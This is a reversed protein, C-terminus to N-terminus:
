HTLIETINNEYSRITFLRNYRDLANAGMESRLQPSSLLEKLREALAHSDHKPIIYGTKGDEIIDPIGGEDTSIVPVSHQMAELLVLPFCDNFTPSVFIDAQAFEANKEDGYKKGLYIVTDTLGRKAIEENLREASIEKTEGGVMRCSFKVGQEKLERCADLLVFLGKSEMLNSLFLIQPVDSAQKEVQPVEPIGNPCVVVQSKDVIDAIDPYLHWSLLVVRADKYTAKLLRRYLPKSAYPKMGKNHQHIIVKKGFMKCMMVFPMDKLFGIGHCTIPLYCVDYRRTILKLLTSFYSSAFRVIKKPTRRGIETMTRSTSLNVWDMDVNRNIVDSDKIYQTMMASGHVPPPLPAIMLARTKRKAM